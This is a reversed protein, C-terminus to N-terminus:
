SSVTMREIVRRLRAVVEDVDHDSNQRGFSFRVTARATKMDRGMALLVHSPQESGSTCASGSSVAIGELDLNAVIMEGELSWVRSDFSVSLLHPLREPQDGNFLLGPFTAALRTRLLYRLRSLRKMEGEMEAVAIEVACAFGVAFPVNETGPRTGREQGGGHVLPTLATGRRVYLAGVGKPGYVKHASLSMLDVDLHRVDIPIKGLAQVADTHVLAGREHVARGIAPVPNITGVENNALMVSVLATHESMSELISGVSTRGDSTPAIVAASAEGNGELYKVLDLVSHHEM